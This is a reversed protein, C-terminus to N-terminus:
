PVSYTTPLSIGTPIVAGQSASLAVAYVTFGSPLGPIPGITAAGAGDLLGTFPFGGTLEAVLEPYPIDIGFFWGLPYAGAGLTVALFHNGLPDGACMDAQISGPGLPSSWTLNFRAPTSITIVTGDPVAGATDFSWAANGAPGVYGITASAGENWISTGGTLSFVTDPYIIQITDASCAADQFVQIQFTIAEGPVGAYHEVANWQLVLVNGIEEWYLTTNPQNSAYLDDWFACVVPQNPPCGVMTGNSSPLIAGNNFFSGLPTAGAVAFGNVCMAVNGAPFLENGITSVFGHSTDDGTNLMATGTASIDVFGLIPAETNSVAAQGRTSPAFLGLVLVLLASRSSLM